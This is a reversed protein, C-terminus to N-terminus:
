RDSHHYCYISSPVSRYVAMEATLSSESMAGLDVHHAILMLPEDPTSMLFLLDDLM